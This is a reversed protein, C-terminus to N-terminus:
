RWVHQMSTLRSFRIGRVHFGSKNFFIHHRDHNEQLCKSTEGASDGTMGPLYFEPWEGLSLKVKSPTAM